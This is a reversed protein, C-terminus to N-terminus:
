KRRLMENIEAIDEPGKVPYLFISDPDNKGFTEYNRIMIQIRTLGDNMVRYLKELVDPSVVMGMELASKTVLINFADQSIPKKEAEVEGVMFNDLILGREAILGARKLLKWFGDLAAKKEDAKSSDFQLAVPLIPNFMQPAVSGFPTFGVVYQPAVPTKGGGWPADIVFTPVAFGSTWGRIALIMKIGASVSTRMHSIGESLDNIYVYYPRVHNAVLDRVLRLMVAPEDNIGEMLVSQNGIQLGAEALMWLARQAEPNKLEQPHNFHTNLWLAKIGQHRKLMSVLAPTVRQPLVVPTRTGFRIVEVHPIKELETIIHDLMQDDVLFADGGSCLVDRIEPHRRIYEIGANIVEMTVPKDVKRRRTCHRCYMGCQGTIEFLVRDPYRHTVSTVVGNVMHKMHDEHLPDSEDFGDRILEAPHMMAQKFIPDQLERWIQPNKWNKPDKLKALVAASIKAPDIMAAYSPPVRMPFVQIGGDTSAMAEHFKGEIEAWQAHDYEIDLADLLHAPSTFANKMQWRWNLWQAMTPEEGKPWRLNKYPALGESLKFEGLAAGLDNLNAQVQEVGVRWALYASDAAKNYPTELKTGSVAIQGLDRLKAGAGQIGKFIERGLRAAKAVTQTAM